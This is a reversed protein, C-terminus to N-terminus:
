KIRFRPKGSTVPSNQGTSPDPLPTTDCPFLRSNLNRLYWDKAEQNAPSAENTIFRNYQLTQILRVVFEGLGEEGGWEGPCWKGNAFWNPHYPPPSTVMMAQPAADPYNTPININIVHDSRYLPQSGIITRIKVRLEYAEVHPVLGATVRWSLWDRRINLMAAYDNAIRIRRIESASAM